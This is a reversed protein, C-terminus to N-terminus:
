GAGAWARVGAGAGVLSPLHRLLIRGGSLWGAAAHDQPQVGGQLGVLM